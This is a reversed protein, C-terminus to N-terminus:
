RKTQELAIFAIAFVITMIIYAILDAM